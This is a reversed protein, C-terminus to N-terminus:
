LNSGFRIGAVLRLRLRERDSGLLPRDVICAAHLVPLELIASWELEKTPVGAGVLGAALAVAAAAALHAERLAHRDASEAARRALIAAVASHERVGAALTVVRVSRSPCRGLGQLRAGPRTTM